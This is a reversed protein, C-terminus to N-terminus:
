PKKQLENLARRVSCYQSTKRSSIGVTPDILIKNALVCTAAERLPRQARRPFLAKAIHILAASYPSTAATKLPSVQASGPFPFAKQVSTQTGKFRRLEM